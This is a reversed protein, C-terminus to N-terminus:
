ICTYMFHHRAPVLQTLPQSEKISKRESWRMASVNTLRKWLAEKHRKMCCEKKAKKERRRYESINKPFGQNM